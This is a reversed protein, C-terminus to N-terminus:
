WPLLQLPKNTCLHWLIQALYPKQNLFNPVLVLSHISEVSSWFLLGRSSMSEAIFPPGGQIQLPWHMLGNGRLWFKRWSTPHSAESGSCGPWTLNRTWRTGSPHCPQTPCARRKQEGKPSGEPLLSLTPPNGLPDEGQWWPLLHERSIYSPLRSSTSLSDSLTQRMLLPPLLSVVKMAGWGVEYFSASVLLSWTVLAYRSQSGKVSPGGWHRKRCESQAGKHWKTLPEKDRLANGVRAGPSM